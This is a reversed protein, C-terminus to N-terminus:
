AAPQEHQRDDARQVELPRALDVVAQQRSTRARRARTTTTSTVPTGSISEGRRGAAARWRRRREAQEAGAHDHGADGASSAAPARRGRRRSGRASESRRGGPRRRAAAGGALSLAGAAGARADRGPAFLDGHEAVRELVDASTFVLEDPDGSEAAAEVEEWTCRRRSRRRERRACRTCARRDDQARREPELRRVGQGRAAGQAMESVVLEPDRRELLQAVASRSRAEDATTPPRAHQAARLGAHGELGVDEPVGECGSTSSRGRAARAGRPRVRRDDGAAGPDLDFALITPARPDSSARWRPTCSSTPSTPWGCSRRCTTSSASTSRARRRHPDPDDRHAGLGPPAGPLEERLLVAGRRREPLAQADAGPRAPAAAAGPAIRTYYDIVHGKTFGAAPYLVKDLNSLSLTRGDVEVEVRKPQPM